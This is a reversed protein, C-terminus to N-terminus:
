FGTRHTPRASPRARPAGGRAAGRASKEARWAALPLNQFPDLERPRRVVARSRGIFGGEPALAGQIEQWMSKLVPWWVPSTVALFLLKLYSEPAWLSDTLNKWFEEGRVVM